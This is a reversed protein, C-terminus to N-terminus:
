RAKGRRKIHAATRAKLKDVSGTKQVEKEVKGTWDECIRPLGKLRQTVPLRGGAAAGAASRWPPRGGGRLQKEPRM